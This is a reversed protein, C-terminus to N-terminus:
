VMPDGPGLMGSVHPGGVVQGPQLPLSLALKQACEMKFGWGWVGHERSVRLLTKKGQQFTKSTLCVSQALEKQQM